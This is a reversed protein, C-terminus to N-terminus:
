VRRYSLPLSADWDTPQTPASFAAVVGGWAKPSGQTGILAYTSQGYARGSDCTMMGNANQRSVTGDWATITGGENKKILGVLWSEASLVNVPVSLSNASAETATARGTPQASQAAGTYSVAHSGIINSASASVVVDNAGVPPAILYWLSTWRDGPVRVEAVKIMAVLAYTVGTVMSTTDNRDYVTVFLIRQSGSTTHAYTLSTSSVEGGNTSTDLRIGM